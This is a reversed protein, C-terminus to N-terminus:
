GGIRCTGFHTRICACIDALAPTAVRYHMRHGDRRATLMGRAQLIRLHGSVVPQAVQIREALESVSLEEQLLIAVLRLRDAHALARLRQSVAELDIGAFPDRRGSRQSTQGSM